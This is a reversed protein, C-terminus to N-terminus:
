TWMWCRLNILRKLQSNIFEEHMEELKQRALVYERHKEENKCESVLEYAYVKGEKNKLPIHHIPGGNHEIWYDYVQFLEDFQKDLLGFYDNPRGTNCDIWWNYLSMMEKMAVKHIETANWDVQGPSCEEEIFKCFVEFCIHLLINDKDHWTHDLYRPKYTTYKKWFRCKLRYLIQFIRYNYPIIKWYTYKIKDILTDEDHLRDFMSHKKVLGTYISM